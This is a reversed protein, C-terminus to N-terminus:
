VQDWQFHSYSAWFKEDITFSMLIVIDNSDLKSSWFQWSLCLFSLTGAVTDDFMALGPLWGRTKRRTRHSEWSHQIM